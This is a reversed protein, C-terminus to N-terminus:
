KKSRKDGSDGGRHIYQYQSPTMKFYQRFATQFHSRHRFGFQHAVTEINYSANTLFQASAELRVRLYYRQPSIGVERTFTRIFYKERLGCQRALSANDIPNQANRRILDLAKSVRPDMRSAGAAAADAESGSEGAGVHSETPHIHLGQEERSALVLLEQVLSAVRMLYADLQLRYEECLLRIIQEVRMMASQSLRVVPTPRRALDELLRVPQPAKALTFESGGLLEPHITM